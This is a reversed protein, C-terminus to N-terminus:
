HLATHKRLYSLAWETINYSIGNSTSTTPNPRYLIGDDALGQTVGLEWYSFDISRVNEQVYRTLVNKEDNTLKHLRKRAKRRSWAKALLGGVYLVSSVILWCAAILFALGVVWRYHDFVFEMGLSKTFRPPTFLLLSSAALLFLSTAVPLPKTLAEFLKAWEKMEGKESIKNSDSVMARIANAPWYRNPM